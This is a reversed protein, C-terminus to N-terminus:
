ILYVFRRLTVVPSGYFLAASLVDLSLGFPFTDLVLDVNKMMQNLRATSFAEPLLRIRHSLPSGAAGWLRRVLKGAWSMRRRSLPNASSVSEDNSDLSKTHSFFSESVVVLLQLTPVSRLIELITDDMLPHVMMPHAALLMVPQDDFFVQGELETPVFGGHTGAAGSGEAKVGTDWAHHDEGSDFPGAGELPGEAKLATERTAHVTFVPWDLRVVQESWSDTFYFDPSDEIMLNNKGDNDTGEHIPELAGKIYSTGERWGFTDDPIIYYDMAMTGCSTGRVYFCIQVPAIRLSQLVLSAQDPFPQWDPFLIVDFHMSALFSFAANVDGSPVNVVRTVKGVIRRTIDSNVLPLALLTVRFRDRNLAVLRQLVLHGVPHGNMHGGLIGVSM